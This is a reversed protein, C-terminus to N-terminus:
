ALVRDLALATAAGYALHPIVDSAWDSPTWERPRSLMDPMHGLAHALSDWRPVPGRATWQQAM